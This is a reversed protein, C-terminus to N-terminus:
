ISRFLNKTSLNRHYKKSPPPCSVFIDWEEWEFLFEEYQVWDTDTRVATTTNFSTETADDDGDVPSNVFFSSPHRLYQQLLHAENQNSQMPLLNGITPRAAYPTCVPWRINVSLSIRCRRFFYVLYRSLSLCIKKPPSHIKILYNSSVNTSRCSNCIFM